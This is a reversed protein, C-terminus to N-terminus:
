GAYKVTCGYPKTTAPQPARGEAYATLAGQVYNTRQESRGYPDDDIAGDYVVNGVEDIVIMHPTTKAGYARGVKGDSDYLVPYAIEHEANYAAHREPALFDGHGSATSNVALWVVEPNGTALRTMTGEEAHRRSFPCNPNIWELVVVKGRYDALQHTTGTQDALSFAPAPQGVTADARRGCAPLLAVAVCMIWLRRVARQRM